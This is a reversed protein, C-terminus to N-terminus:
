ARSRPERLREGFYAYQVLDEGLYEGRLHAEETFGSAECVRRMGANWPRTMLKLKGWGCAEVLDVACGILARGVGRNRRGAEVAVLHVQAPAEVSEDTLLMFGVAEGEEEAVLLRVGPRGGRRTFYEENFAQMGRGIEDAFAECAIGALIPEDGPRFGRIDPM